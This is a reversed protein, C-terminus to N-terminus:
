QGEGAATLLARLRKRGRHLHTRVTNVPLLLAQAIAEYSQEEQHYLVLASREVPSLQEMARGVAEAFEHQQLLEEAGPDPRALREEWSLTTGEPRESFPVEMRAARSRRKRADHAVNVIIRYLYTSLAADGRFRPLARFLGCFSRRRWTM